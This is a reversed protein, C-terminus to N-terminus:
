CLFFLFSFPLYLISPVSCTKTFCTSMNTFVHFNKAYIQPPCTGGGKDMIPCNLTSSSFKLKLTEMLLALIHVLKYAIEYGGHSSCGNGSIPSFVRM